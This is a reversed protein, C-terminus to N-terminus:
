VEAIIKRKRETMVGRGEKDRLEAVAIAKKDWALKREQISKVRVNTSPRLLDDSKVSTLSRAGIQHPYAISM